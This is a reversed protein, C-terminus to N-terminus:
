SLRILLRIPFIEKNTLKFPKYIYIHRHTATCKKQEYNKVTKNAGKNIYMNNLEVQAM